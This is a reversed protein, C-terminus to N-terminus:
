LTILLAIYRNLYSHMINYHYQIIKFTNLILARLILSVAKYIQSLDLYTISNNYYINTVEIISRTINIILQFRHFESFM